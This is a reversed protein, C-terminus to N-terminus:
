LFPKDDYHIQRMPRVTQIEVQVMNVIAHFFIYHTHIVNRYPASLIKFNKLRSNVNEHRARASSTMKEFVNNRGSPTVAREGGDRYGSDAIYMEGQPFHQYLSDRAILLDPYSGAPYPGNKWVIWGTQLCVGIEYRLGAGKFKHSYWRGSFETPEQIPCDTGDVSIKCKSGNDLM